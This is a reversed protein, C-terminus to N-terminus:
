GAKKQVKKMKEDIEENQEKIKEREKKREEIYSKLEDFDLNLEYSYECAETYPPEEPPEGDKWECTWMQRELPSVFKPYEKDGDEMRLQIKHGADPPMDVKIKKEEIEGSEEDEHYAKEFTVPTKLQEGEEDLLPKGDFIVKAGEPETKISVEGFFNNESDKKMREKMEWQRASSDPLLNVHITREFDVDSGGVQRWMGETLTWEAPEHGPASASLTHEQEIDLNQFQTDPTLIVPRWEGSDPTKGYQVEGDLKITSYKPYGRVSLTGFKPLNALQEQEFTRKEQRAKAMEYAKLDGKFLHVIRDGQQTYSLLGWSGGALLLVLVAGFMFIKRNLGDSELEGLDHDGLYAAHLEEDAEEPDGAYAEPDFVGGILGDPNQVASRFGTGAREAGESDDEGDDTEADSAEVSEQEDDGEDDEGGSSAEAEDDSGDDASAETEDDSEDIEDADAEDDAEDAGDDSAEEASAEAAEEAESDDEGSAESSKDDDSGDAEDDGSAETAEQDDDQPEDSAASQEDDDEAEDGEDDEDLAAKLKERTEEDLDEPNEIADELEDSM